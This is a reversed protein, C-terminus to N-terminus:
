PPPLIGEVAAQCFVQCTYECGAQGDLQCNFGECFTECSGTQCWLECTTQCKTQCSGVMCQMECIGQCYVECGHMCGAQCEIMCAVQCIQQCMSQCNAGECGATCSLECAHECQAECSFLCTTQGGLQCAAQCAGQCAHQCLVQCNAECGTQCAQCGYECATQCAGECSDQCLTQCDTSCAATIEFDGETISLEDDLEQTGTASLDNDTVTLHETFPHSTIPIYLLVHIPRLREFLAFLAQQEAITLDNSSGGYYYALEQLQVRASKYPHQADQSTTYDNIEHMTTKWLEVIDFEPYDKLSGYNEWGLHQGSKDFVNGAQEVFARQHLGDSEPNPFDAYYTSQYKLYVLDCTRPDLLGALEEIKEQTEDAIQEYAYMVGQLVPEATGGQTQRDRLRIIFPLLRYLDISM